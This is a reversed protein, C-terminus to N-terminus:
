LRLWYAIDKNKLAVALVTLLRARKLAVVPTYLSGIYSIYNLAQAHMHSAVSYKFRGPHYLSFSQKM